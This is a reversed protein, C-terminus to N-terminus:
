QPEGATGCAACQGIVEIVHRSPAFGSKGAAEYVATLADKSITEEVTGCEDCISLIAAHGVGECQCAVFSNRSELRHVSGDEVLVALARYITTPALRGNPTRLADLLDYASMPARRSRMLELIATQLAEARKGM